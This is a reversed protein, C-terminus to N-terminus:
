LPYREIAGSSLLMEVVKFAPLGMVNFFDGRIGSILGAGLGQVAYAGAKGKWEGTDVYNEVQMMGLRTFTVDTSVVSTLPEIRQRGLWVGSLVTHTRGALSNVMRVAEDRDSAKGLVGEDLVVVTDAALIWPNKGEGALMDSVSRGKLSAARQVYEDPKEGSLMAEDADSVVVEFPINLKTLIENRRPSASALVILGPNDTM